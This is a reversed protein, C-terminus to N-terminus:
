YEILEFTEFHDSYAATPGMNEIFENKIILNGTNTFHTQANSVNEVLEGPLYLAAREIAYKTYLSKVEECQALSSVKYVSVDAIDIYTNLFRDSRDFRLPTVTVGAYTSEGTTFLYNSFTTLHNNNKYYTVTTNTLLNTVTNKNFGFEIYEQGQNMVNQAIKVDGSEFFMCVVSWTDAPILPIYQALGSGFTVSEGYNGISNNQVSYNKSCENTEFYQKDQINSGIDCYPMNTKLLYCGIIWEHNGPSDFLSGFISFGPLYHVRESRNDTNSILQRRFINQKILNDYLIQCPLDNKQYLIKYSSKIGDHLIISCKELNYKLFDYDPPIYQFMKQNKYKTYLSAM